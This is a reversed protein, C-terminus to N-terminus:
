GGTHTPFANVNPSGVPTIAYRSDNSLFNGSVAQPISWREKRDRYFTHSVSTQAFALTRDAEIVVFFAPAEASAGAGDTM